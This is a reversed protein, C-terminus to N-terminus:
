RLAKKYVVATEKATISWNFQKLRIQGNKVIENKVKSDQLVTDIKNILDRADCAEFYIAGNELVEVLTQTKSAVVPIGCALAQLPPLGFGEYLSPQCYVSALNFIAVLDQNEIFGLRQIYKSAFLNALKKYHELEPHTLGFAKRVLDRPGKTSYSGIVKELEAANKGVIVLHIKSRICARALTEVNKNYNVDGVYLVFKEPLAFKKIIDKLNKKDKIKKYVPDPALYIPVVKKAPVELFRVIDKKSTESDTIIYKVNKLASIQRKFNINGRLGAKYHKPYLLPIVDHITVITPKELADPLTHSFLDFYPYHFVDWGDEVLQINPLKGLANILSRTYSGVGRVAHGGSLASNEIKVKM